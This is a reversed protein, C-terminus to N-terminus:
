RWITAKRVAACSGAARVMYLTESPSLGGFDEREGWLEKKKRFYFSGFFFSLMACFARITPWPGDRARGTRGGGRQADLLSCPAAPTPRPTGAGAKAEFDRFFGPISGSCVDVRRFKGRPGRLPGFKKGKYRFRWLKGGGGEFFPRVCLGV